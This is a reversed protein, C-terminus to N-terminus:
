ITTYVDTYVSADGMLVPDDPVLLVAAGDKTAPKADQAVTQAIALKTPCQDTTATGLVAGFAKYHEKTDDLVPDPLWHM